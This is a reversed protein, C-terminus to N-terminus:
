GIPEPMRQVTYALDLTRGTVPDALEVRWRDAFQDVGALMAVTGSLLVTGPELLTAIEDLWFRPPLLAANMYPGCAAKTVSCNLVRSRYVPLESAYVMAPTNPPATAGSANVASCPAHPM